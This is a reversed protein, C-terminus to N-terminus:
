INRPRNPHLASLINVSSMDIFDNQESIPVLNYNEKKYKNKM